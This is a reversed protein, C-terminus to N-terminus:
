AVQGTQAKLGGAHSQVARAKGRRGARYAGIAELRHQGRAVASVAEPRLKAARAHGRLEVDAVGQEFGAGLVPRQVQAAPLDALGEADGHCHRLRLGIGQQQGAQGHEAPGCAAAANSGSNWFGGFAGDHFGGECEGGGEQQGWPALGQRGVRGDRQLELLAHVAVGARLVGV